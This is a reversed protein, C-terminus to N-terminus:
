IKHVINLQKLRFYIYMIRYETAETYWLTYATVINRYAIRHHRHHHHHQHTHTHTHPPPPDGTADPHMSGLVHVLGDAPGPNMFAECLFKTVCMLVLIHSSTFLNTVTYKEYGPKRFM